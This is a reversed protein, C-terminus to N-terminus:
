QLHILASSKKSMGIFCVTAPDIGHEEAIVHFQTKRYMEQEKTDDTLLKATMPISSVKQYIKEFDDTSLNNYELITDNLSMISMAELQVKLHLISFETRGFKQQKTTRKQAVKQKTSKNGWFKQASEYSIDKGQIVKAVDSKEVKDYYYFTVCEVDSDNIMEFIHKDNYPSLGLITLAGTMTKFEDYPYHQKFELEPNNKILMIGEYFNRLTRNESNKWSEITTRHEESEDYGKIFKKVVENTIQHQKLVFDKYAGSHYSISTSYLYPYKPDFSSSMLPADSMQNRASSPDYLNNLTRFDGHLHHVLFDVVDDINSDYNTTFINDFNNLWQIFDYSFRNSLQNVQGENYIAHLFNRVLLERINSEASNDQNTQVCILEHLLYYDEFGIDTIRISTKNGYRQKFTMLAEKEISSRTYSDFGGQLFQPVREFIRGLYFRFDPNVEEPSDDELSNQLARLVIVNNTFDYGGHQINIGNGILLNKM